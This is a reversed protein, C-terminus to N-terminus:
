AAETEDLLGDLRAAALKVYDPDREVLVARLGEAHAAQGTTGSGAFPDLVTGGPPTILRVLWRMLAVPKVTPHSVGDVKPRERKPAKAQYRFTPFFRSAGGSDEPGRVAPLDDGYEGYTGTAGKGCGRSHATSRTVGSQQDLEAVPCGQECESEDCAEAHSLIVNAPFRGDSHPQINGESRPRTDVGYVANNRAAANRVSAYKDALQSDLAKVRCGDINLGGVGHALVNRAVTSELPKRALIIPEVAPKLATGWGEFRSDGTSKHVNHSKPFGSGYLWQLTDRIEFGALRISLGMLDVTRSGAFVLMHGGPKLVRLCEDWVAPPPVFADWAKGMFGRGDPVHERDGNVWATLAASLRAPGVESLGYPPDTVVAHVSADPLARLVDLADAHHLTVPEVTRPASM